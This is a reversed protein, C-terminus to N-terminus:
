RDKPFTKYDVSRSNGGRAIEDIFINTTTLTQDIELLANRKAVVDNSFSNVIFKFQVDSDSYLTNLTMIGTEINFTGADAYKVNKNDKIYYSYINIINRDSTQEEGFYLQLDGLTWPVDSIINVFVKGDDTACRAGFNLRINNVGTSSLNFAQSLYVRVLSNLIASSSDEIARVFQSHRFVSNFENIRNINYDTIIDSIRSSIDSRSLTTVNPNYKVLIDLVIKCRQADVMEPFISLIKKSQLYALIEAKDNDSLNVSTSQDSIKNASIFVKGYVPPVNDEGGWVSISNIYGFNAKILNAYDDSTVARNQTAFSSIANNKLASISEKEQGGSSRGNITLGSTSILGIMSPESVILNQNIIRSCNNAVVGNTVIYELEIINGPDLKKGFVGDGFSIEYKGFINENIFYVPTKDTITLSNNFPQFLSNSGSSSDKQVRVKLSSIDINDDIIEYTASTDYAIAAYSRTVLNGQYAIAPESDTSVYNNGNLTLKVDDRLVFSYDGSENQSQLSSVSGNFLGGRVTIEPSHNVINPNKPISINFSLQSASRSRPIYGLLKAASVVSSRLQASDIYSENVAMHALMANYHTNYALVDIITNLNSGEFNWDSFKGNEEEKFYSILNAKIQDFDLTTVDIQKGLNAM